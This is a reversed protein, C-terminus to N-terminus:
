WTSALPLAPQLKDSFGPGKLICDLCPVLLFTTCSFAPRPKGKHKQHSLMHVYIEQDRSTLAQVSPSEVSASQSNQPLFSCTTPDLFLSYTYHFSHGSQPPSLLSSLPVVASLIPHLHCGVAVLPESLSHEPHPSLTM